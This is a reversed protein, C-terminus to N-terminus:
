EAAGENMLNEITRYAHLVTTHDKGFAKGIEPFSYGLKRAKWMVTQRARATPKDRRKSFIAYVSIGTVESVETALERLLTKTHVGIYEPQKMVAKESHRFHGTHRKMDKIAQKQIPSLSIIQNM